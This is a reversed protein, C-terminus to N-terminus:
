IKANFLRAFKIDVEELKKTLNHQMERNEERLIKNEEQLDTLVGNLEVPFKGEIGAPVESEVSLTTLGKFTTATGTPAVEHVIPEKLEYVITTPNDRFYSKDTISKDLFIWCGTASNAVSNIKTADDWVIFDLGFNKNDAKINKQQSTALGLYIKDTAVNEFYAVNVNAGSTSIRTCNLDNLIISSCKQMIRNNSLELVDKSGNPVDKASGMSAPLQVQVVSEKYGEFETSVDGEEIQLEDIVYQLQKNFDAVQIYPALAIVDDSLVTTFSVNKDGIKISGVNDFNGNLYKFRFFTNIEIENIPLKFSVTVKKGKKLLKDLEIIPTRTSDRGVTISKIKCENKGTTRVRIVGGEAQGVSTLPFSTSTLNPPNAVVDGEIINIKFNDIEEQTFASNQAFIGLKVQTTTKTSTFKFVTSFTNSECIKIDISNETISLYGKAINRGKAIITYVQNAYLIVDLVSSASAKSDSIFPKRYKTICNKITNGKVVLDKISGELTNKITLSGTGKQELFMGKSNDVHAFQFDKDLREKLNTHEKGWYDTRAQVVEGILKKSELKITEVEGLEIARELANKTTEANTITNTLETNKTTATSINTELASIKTTATNNKTNLSNINSTATNNKTNLSTINTRAAANERLLNDKNVVLDNLGALSNRFVELDKKAQIVYTEIQKLVSLESTNMIVDAHNVKSKVLFIFDASTITGELDEFELECVVNGKCNLASNKLKIEIKGNKIDIVKIEDLQELVSRDERRIYLKITQGTLDKAVGNECTNVNLTVADLQKFTAISAYTSKITDVNINVIKRAM